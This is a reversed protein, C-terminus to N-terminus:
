SLRLDSLNVKEISDPKWGPRNGKEIIRARVGELFDPHRLMFQVATFDNEFVKDM